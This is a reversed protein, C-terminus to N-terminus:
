RWHSESNCKHSSNANDKVNIKKFLLFAASSAVIVNPSLYDFATENPTLSLANFYWSLFFTCMTALSFIIIYIRASLRLLWETQTLYYGLIFYGSWGFFGSLKLHQIVNIPYYITISNILLWLTFFYIAFNRDSILATYIVELIPLLLYIGIMMYVFPLHYMVPAEAMLKLGSFFDLPKNTWYAIWLLYIFSWFILPFLVRNVRKSGGGWKQRKGLLLAGSLMIFLPVSVRALSDIGNGILFSDISITRYDYFVPASIHILIVGFIAILRCIDMWPLHIETVQKSM